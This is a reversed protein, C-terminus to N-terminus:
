FGGQAAGLAALVVGSAISRREDESEIGQAELEQLLKKVKSILVTQIEQKLSEASAIAAAKAGADAIQKLENGAATAANKIPAAIAQAASALKGAAAGAASGAKKGAAAGVAKAGAGAAKFLRGLGFFEKVIEEALYNARAETMLQGPPTPTVRDYEERILKRLQANTIRM